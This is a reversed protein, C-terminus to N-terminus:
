SFVLFYITNEKTKKYLVFFSPYVM